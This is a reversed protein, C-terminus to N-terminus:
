VIVIDKTDRTYDVSLLARALPNKFRKPFDDTHHKRRGIGGRADTKELCNKKTTERSLRSM